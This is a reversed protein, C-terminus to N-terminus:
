VNAGGTREAKSALRTVNLKTASATAVVANEAFIVAQELKSDNPYAAANVNVNAARVELENRAPM